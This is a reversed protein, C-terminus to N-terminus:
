KVGSIVRDLNQLDQKIEVNKYGQQEMLAKIIKGQKHGIEFILIGGDKLYKFAEKIIEYYFYLGEKDAFLAELPEHLLTDDSMDIVESKDIYPPNSIIMDFQNYNVNEFLNSKLFKVNKAGLLKKNKLSIELAKDSIDIGLSKVNELELSLTIAIAGSGTGIDLVTNFNNKKLLTIAEEVLIETDQRPILVGTNVYFTRGYFMQENLLYQIPFKEKAIKKLYDRIMNLEKETVIDNYKTFLMMRDVDFVHSFILETVLKAELVEYKSLYETSKNLLYKINLRDNESYNERENGIKELKNDILDNENYENNKYFNKKTVIDNLSNRIISLQDDSLETEFNAYLMIRPINLHQSLIKEVELRPNQINKKTLYNVSKNLIDLLKSM